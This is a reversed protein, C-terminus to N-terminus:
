APGREDGDRGAHPPQLRRRDARNPQRGLRWIGAHRFHHRPRASDPRGLQRLRGARARQLFRSAEPISVSPGGRDQDITDLSSSRLTGHPARYTRAAVNPTPSDVMRQGFFAPCLHRKGRPSGGRPQRREQVNHPARLASCAVGDSTSTPEATCRTSGCSAKHGVRGDRRQEVAHLAHCAGGSCRTGVVSAPGVDDHRVGKDGARM